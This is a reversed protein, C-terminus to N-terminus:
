IMEGKDIYVMEWFDHKEGEYYFNKSLEMYFITIITEINFIKDFSIRTFDSM